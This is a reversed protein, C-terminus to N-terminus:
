VRLLLFHFFHYGNSNYCHHCRDKSSGGGQGKFTTGISVNTYVVIVYPTTKVQSTYICITFLVIEDNLTTRIDAKVVKSDAEPKVGGFIHIDIFDIDYQIVGEIDVVHHGHANTIDQIFNFTKDRIFNIDTNTESCNKLRAQSEVVIIIFKSATINYICGNTM